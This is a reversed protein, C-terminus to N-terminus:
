THNCVKTLKLPQSTTANDQAHQAAINALATNFTSISNDDTSINSFTASGLVHTIYNNQWLLPLKKIHVLWYQSCWTLLLLWLKMKFFVQIPSTIWHIWSSAHHTMVLIQVHTEIPKNYDGFVSPRSPTILRPFIKVSVILHTFYTMWLKVPQSTGLVVIEMKKRIIVM